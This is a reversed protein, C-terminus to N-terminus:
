KAEQAKLYADYAPLNEEQWRAVDEVTIDEPTGPILEIPPDIVRFDEREVWHGFGLILFEAPDSYSDVSAVYSRVGDMIVDKLLLEMAEPHQGKM